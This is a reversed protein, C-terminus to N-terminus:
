LKEKRGDPWVRWGLQISPLEFAEFRAAEIGVNRRLEAGDYLGSMINTTRAPVRSEPAPGDKRLDLARLEALGDITISVMGDESTEILGAGAMEPAYRSEVVGPRFKRHQAILAADLGKISLPKDALARLVGHKITGPVIKM